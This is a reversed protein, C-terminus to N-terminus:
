RDRRSTGGIQRRCDGDADRVRRGLLHEVHAELYEMTLRRSNARRHSPAALGRPCFIPTSEADLDMVFSPGDRKLRTWPIRAPVGRGDGLKRDYRSYWRALRRSFRSLLTIPSVEIYVLRPPRRARLDLVIGDVRGAQRGKSDILQEDLVDAVLNM